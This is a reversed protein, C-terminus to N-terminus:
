TAMAAAIAALIGGGVVLGVKSDGTTKKELGPPLMTAAPTQVAAVREPIKPAGEETVQQTTGYGSDDSTPGFGSDDSPRSMSAQEFAAKAADYNTQVIKEQEARRRQEALWEAQAKAKQEAAIREQEAKQQAAMDEEAKKQIALLTENVKQQAITAMKEEDLKKQEAAKAKAAEDSKQKSLKSSSSMFAGLDNVVSRRYQAPTADYADIHMGLSGIVSGDATITRGPPPVLMDEGLGSRRKAILVLAGVIVGATILTSTKM